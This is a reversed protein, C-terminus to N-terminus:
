YIVLMMQKEELSNCQGRKQCSFIEGKPKKFSRKLIDIIYEKEEKEIKSDTKDPLVVSFEDIVVYAYPLKKTKYIKNYESINTATGCERAKEILKKRRNFEKNVERMMSYLKNTESAYYKVHKVDKFQIYENKAV